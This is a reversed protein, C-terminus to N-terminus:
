VSAQSLIDNMYGCSSSTCKESGRHHYFIFYFQLVNKWNRRGCLHYGKMYSHRVCDWIHVIHMSFHEFSFNNISCFTPKVFYKWFQLLERSVVNDISGWMGKLIMSFNVFTILCLKQRTSKILLRWIKSKGKFLVLIIYPNGSCLMLQEVLFYSLLQKFYLKIHEDDVGM